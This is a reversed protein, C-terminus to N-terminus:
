TNDIFVRFFDNGTQISSVAYWFSLSASRYGALSFNQAMYAGMYNQYTPNSTTGGYGTGACYGAWNGGHPPPTGFSRLDVNKWYATIGTPNADGVSWNGPFAGEFGESLITTQGRSSEVLLFVFGVVMSVLMKQTTGKMGLKRKM